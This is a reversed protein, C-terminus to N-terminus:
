VIDKAPFIASMVLPTGGNAFLEALVLILESPLLASLIYSWGQSIDAESHCHNDSKTV